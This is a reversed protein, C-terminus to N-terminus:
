EENRLSRYADSIRYLEYEHNEYVLTLEERLEPWVIGGLEDAFNRFTLLYDADYFHHGNVGVMFGMRGTNLYLVRPKMYAILADEEVYEGIYAYIDRSAPHYAEYLQERGGNRIDDIKWKVLDGARMLSVALMLGYLAWVVARGNKETRIAGCAIRFIAAAGYVAFLGMLPLINFMYRLGQAYPLTLLVAGTGCLLVSLHIEKQRWGRDVLGAAILVYVVLHLYKRGPVWQPLTDGVFSEMLAYYDLINNKIRDLTFGSMHSTNSNPEPLVCYTAAYLVGFVIWPLLEYILKKGKVRNGIVEFLQYCLVCYLVTVGNLRVIATYWASVGLLFSLLLKHLLRPEKEFLEVVLLSVFAAALCPVDTLINNVECYIQKHSILIFTLFLSVAYSFRRRYFLFLVGAFLAFFVVGPVKYYIIASGMPADYGVLRYVLSLVMPLGWVYVLPSDDIVGEEFTRESPHLVANRQAMEEIDGEVLAQAHLIYGAFDDGWAHGRNLIGLGLVLTLVFIVLTTLVDRRSLDNWQLAKPRTNKVKNQIM